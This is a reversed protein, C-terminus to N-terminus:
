PFFLRTFSLKVLQCTNIKRWFSSTHLASMNRVKIWHYEILGEVTQVPGRITRDFAKLIVQNKGTKM